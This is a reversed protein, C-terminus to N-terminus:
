HTASYYFYNRLPKNFSKLRISQYLHLSLAIQRLTSKPHFPSEVTKELSSSELSLARQYPYGFLTVFTVRRKKHDHLVVFLAIVSRIMSDSNIKFASPLM